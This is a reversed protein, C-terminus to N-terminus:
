YCCYHDPCDLLDPCDPQQSLLCLLSFLHLLWVENGAEGDVIAIADWAAPDGGKPVMNDDGNSAVEKGIVSGQYGQLRLWM